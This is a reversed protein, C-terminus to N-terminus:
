KFIQTQREVAVFAARQSGRGFVSAEVPPSCPGTQHNDTFRWAPILIQLPPRENAARALKEITHQRGDTEVLLQNVDGVHNVPPRGSIARWSQLLSLTAARKEFPLNLENLRSQPLLYYKGTTKLGGNGIFRLLTEFDTLVTGPGEEDIDQERLIQQARDSLSFQPTDDTFVIELM